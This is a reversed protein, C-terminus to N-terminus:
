LLSIAYALNDRAIQEYNDYFYHTSYIANKSLFMNLIKKRKRKYIPSPVLKYEKRINTEYEEFVFREAGLISLDIDVLLKEDDTNIPSGHVTCMILNNIRDIVDDHAGNSHLFEVALNASDRENTSSLPQYVADHFWLALEIETVKEAQDSVKDLHYLCASIHEATHYFRQKESYAKVLQAFTDLNENYKCHTMLKLWRTETMSM